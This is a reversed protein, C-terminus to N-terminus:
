FNTPLSISYRIETLQTSFRQTIEGSSLSYVQLEGPNIEEPPPPQTGPPAPPPIGPIEPTVDEDKGSKVCKIRRGLKFYIFWRGFKDKDKPDPWAFSGGELYWPKNECAERIKCDKGPPPCKFKQWEDSWIKKAIDTRLFPVFSTFYFLRADRETDWGPDITVPEEFYQCTDCDQPTDASPPPPKAGQQEYPITTATPMAEEL